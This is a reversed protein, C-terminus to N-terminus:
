VDLGRREIEACLADAAPDGPEGSTRQYAAELQQDNLVGTGGCALCPPAEPVRMSPEASHTAATSKGTGHCVPCRQNAPIM